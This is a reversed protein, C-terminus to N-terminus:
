HHPYLEEAIKEPLTRKLESAVADALLGEDIGVPEPAEANIYQEWTMGLEKRQENHHDYAPEPIKITGYEQTM